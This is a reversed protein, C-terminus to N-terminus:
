IKSQSDTQQQQTKKPPRAEFLVNLFVQMNYPSYYALMDNLKIPYANLTLKLFDVAQAHQGSLELLLARQYAIKESPQYRMASGTIWLKAQLNSADDDLKNAFLLEAHPSLLSKGHAWQLHNLTERQDLSGADARMLKVNAIGTVTLVMFLVALSLGTGVVGVSSRRVPQHKEDGAGLLFALVVLYFAHHFNASFMSVAFITGLMSLLWVHEINLQQWRQSRLWVVTAALLAIVAFIGFDLWLQVLANPAHYFVGVKGPVAPQTISLFSHWGVNGVGIGLWPHDVGIKLSVLLTDVLSPQVQAGSGPLVWRLLGFVLVALLALHLWTRKERSGTQTRMAIIQQALAVVALGLIVWWGSAQFILSIGSLLLLGSVIALPNVIKRSVFLYLWGSAGIAVTLGSYQTLNGAFGDLPVWLGPQLASVLVILSIVASSALAVRSFVDALAQWGFAHRYYHGAVTMFFAIVFYAIATLAASASHLMGLMWQLVTLAALMPWFLSVQPLRILQWSASATMSFMVVGAVLFTLWYAWFQPIVSLNFAGLLPLPLLATMLWLLKSQM